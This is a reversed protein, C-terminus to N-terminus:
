GRSEDASLPIKPAPDTVGVRVMTDKVTPTIADILPKPFFGLVVILVIVPALAAIERVSLDRMGKVKEVAPGTMTRQYVLLMYLAALVISVTAIVGAWTHRQFAGALSLFEGIFTSLGPLSLGALVFFLFMGSLVPAQTDVGGYDAIRPSGRRKILYGLILFLAGTSLGHNVMYVTSGVQGNSTMAFIGLVMIGFHSISTYAILRPLERTGIALLAGYFISILALVLVVPTAWRSAEPFLQLCYRIMGFTGIKDLVSVLMVSTGPTGAAASDPLWAHVPFMPAKIAFAAFFAVFLWRGTGEAMPLKVLDSLLMSPTGNRLSVAYVGVVGALLVLGGVLSYVLFKIAARQRNAGGYTGILFYLPILTAEFLIYFLFLDTAMFVGLALGEVALILAFYGKPSKGTADADTWSAAMVIPTLVATMLMLVLGIGDVGLAYHVGFTSIWMHTESFQTGDGAVFGVGVIAALVFAVLAVALGVLKGAREASRPMLALLLAGVLPVAAIVTLWPFQSHNV